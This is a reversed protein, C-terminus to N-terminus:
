VAYTYLMHKHVAKTIDSTARLGERAGADHGGGTDRHSHVRFVFGGRARRELM